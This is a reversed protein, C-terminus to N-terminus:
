SMLKSGIDCLIQVFRVLHLWGLYINSKNSRMHNQFTVVYAAFGFVYFSVRLKVSHLTYTKLSIVNTGM